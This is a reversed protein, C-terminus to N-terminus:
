RDLLITELAEVRKEMRSFGSFVDQIAATEDDHSKRTKRSLAGHRMRVAALIMGGSVALAAVVGVFLIAGICVGNM